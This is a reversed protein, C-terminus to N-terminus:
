KRAEQKRRANELGIRRGRHSRGHAFNQSPKKVCVIRFRCRFLREQIEMGLRADAYSDYALLAPRDASPHWCGNSANWLMWLGARPLPPPQKRTGPM